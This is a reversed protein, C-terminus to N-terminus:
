HFFVTRELAAELGHFHARRGLVFGNLNEFAHALAVFFEVGDAIRVFGDAIGHIERATVNRVTKQRVLGDVQDILGARAHLQALGGQGIFHGFHLFAHLENGVPHFRGDGIVLELLRPEVGLFLALLFLIKAGDTLAQLSSSVLVPMTVRSSM